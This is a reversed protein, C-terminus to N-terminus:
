TRSELSILDLSFLVYQIYNDSLCFASRTIKKKSFLYLYLANNYTQM